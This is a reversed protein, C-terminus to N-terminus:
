ILNPLDKRTKGGSGSCKYRREYVVWAYALPGKTCALPSKTSDSEICGLRLRPPEKGVARIARM